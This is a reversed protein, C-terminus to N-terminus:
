STSSRMPAHSPRRKRRPTGTCKRTAGFHDFCAYRERARRAAAPDVDDLYRLVGSISAHLSYLDMGYFGVQEQAHARNWDRLWEIFEHVVSNRWMWRPFREFEGLAADADPDASDGRVYRNVRLADPWDAEVAILRFGKEVILRKTLEARTEYFEHTGHSAEGILVVSRAAAAELLGSYDGPASVRHAVAAIAEAQSRLAKM